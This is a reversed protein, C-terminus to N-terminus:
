YRCGVPTNTHVRVDHRGLTAELHAALPADLTAPLVQPLRELVSVGFGRIRLAEAMEMGIYGAGIILLRM